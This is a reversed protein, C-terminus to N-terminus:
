NELSNKCKQFMGQSMNIMEAIEKQTKVIGKDLGFRYILIYQEDEKLQRIAKLLIEKNEEELM